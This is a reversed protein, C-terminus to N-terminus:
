MFPGKLGKFKDELKQVIATWKMEFMPYAAAQEEDFPYANVVRVLCELFDVYTLM